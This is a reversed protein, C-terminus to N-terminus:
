SASDLMQPLASEALRVTENVNLTGNVIQASNVVHLGPISTQQSPLRSSYGLTPLPYVYRERSVQFALLDEPQLHSYMGLIAKM